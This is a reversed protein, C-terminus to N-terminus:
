VGDRELLVVLALVTQANAGHGVVWLADVPVRGDLLALLLAAVLSFDLDVELRGGFVRVQLGHIHDESGHVVILAVEVSRGVLAKHAEIEPTVLAVSRTGRWARAGGSLAAEGGASPEM